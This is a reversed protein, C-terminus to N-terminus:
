GILIHEHVQM